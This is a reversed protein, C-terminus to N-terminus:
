AERWRATQKRQGAQSYIVRLRHDPTKRLPTTFPVPSDALSGIVSRSRSHRSPVLKGQVALCTQYVAIQPPDRSVPRSKHRSIAGDLWGRQHVLDLLSTPASGTAQRSRV